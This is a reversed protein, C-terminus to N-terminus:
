ILSHPQTFSNSSTPTTTRSIMAASPSTIWTRSPPGYGTRTWWETWRVNTVGFPVRLFHYLRGDAEFATYQRDEPRIPLQHYASKLDITSVVRYQAIQNVMDSIRPLPYADLQTYRNITQGYDIVMRHKEGTKVVVVQARWPSTSAEIIGEGLLRQVESRIFARDGASYRRSKTVIPKCDPTLNEFLSPPAVKLTSLSCTTRPPCDLFQQNCVSLPPFPGSYEMTVSKLHSLFDLGLLVAACFQPLVLLRFNKYVTGRVTLTAVCYGLVDVSHSKSAMSITQKMPLVSLAYRSVINPHIFSETSGCVFLCNTIRGTVEIDM